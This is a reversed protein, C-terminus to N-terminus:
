HELVFMDRDYNQIGKIIKNINDDEQINFLYVAIVEPIEIFSVILSFIAPLVLTIM